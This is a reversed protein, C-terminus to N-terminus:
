RESLGDRPYEDRPDAGFNVMPLVAISRIADLPRETELHAPLWWWGGAVLLAVTAIAGTALLAPRRSRSHPAAAGAAPTTRALFRPVYGGKPMEICVAANRGADSYYEQLRARLKGAEVRVIPDIRPDFDEKRDFVEAALVTEKIADQGGALTQQVTYELFRRSRNAQAFPPSSLIAALEALVAERSPEGPKM